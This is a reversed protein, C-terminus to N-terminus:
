RLRALAAAVSPLITSWVHGPVPGAHIRSQDSLATSRVSAQSPSAHPPPHPYAGLFSHRDHGCGILHTSRLEEEEADEDDIRMIDNNANAKSSNM